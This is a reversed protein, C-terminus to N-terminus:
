NKYILFDNPKLKSSGILITAGSPTMIETEAGFNLVITIKDKKYRRTFLIQDNNIELKEYSGYQLCKEKNRLTILVKYTNLISNKQQLSQQVNINKYDEQVKIWPTGTSFGANNSNDWQMPSRSKDRNHDNGWVLAQEPTKGENLALQYFTKGQVDAIEDYTSATINQMGIEEGYYLFPVGKATLILAALAKAREINGEALRNMLRPNDHSGFFLTPYDSMSNEMSQLETFLRNASFNPVSGFNFNFVVDM